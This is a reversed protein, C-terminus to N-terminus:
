YLGITFNYSAFHLPIEPGGAGGLDAVARDVSSAGWKKGPFEKVFRADHWGKEM